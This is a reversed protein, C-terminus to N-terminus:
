SPILRELINQYAINEKELNERLIEKEEATMAPMISLWNRKEAESLPSAILLTILKANEEQSLFEQFM